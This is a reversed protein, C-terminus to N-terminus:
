SHLMKLVPGILRLSTEVSPWATISSNLKRAENTSANAPVDDCVRESSPDLKEQSCNGYRPEMPLKTVWTAM